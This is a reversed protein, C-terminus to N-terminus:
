PRYSRGCLLAGGYGPFSQPVWSYRDTFGSLVFATCNPSSLCINLTDYYIKAQVDLDTPRALGKIRVHLETLHVELGLASFQEMGATLRELDPPSTLTADMQLGVGHIPIRRDKLDYVLRHVGDSKRGLPETVDDSYFLQAAPDAEHAWQFALEIYEPGISRLWITDRLFGDDDIADNVVDWAAIRGRYRGVVTLIHERLVHLMEQRPYRKESLWYPLQHHGVLTHGRVQMGNKEAFLVIDDADTFYFRDRSPHIPGFKMAHVPTLMNFERKLTDRYLGEFQLPSAAVGAGLHIARAQAADRLSM